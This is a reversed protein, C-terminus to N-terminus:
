ERILKVDKFMIKNDSVGLEKGSEISVHKLHVEKPRVIPYKETYDDDKLKPNFDAFIKPGKYNEPHGNDKITLGDIIVRAPLYCTYGFNHYGPNHGSILTVQGRKARAPVFVCNRIIVEGEWTSGYDPRLNVFSGSRNTTNEILLTGSGIANLGAHGLTSNRITANAVGQHADFRSLKCGDYLLNKSFNSAMIGWYKRDKIDNTQSCNIFSVNVARKVLIDYSGMSVPRGASGITRYTKRGTLVSDRVTVNACDSINLFGGYPAGHDGEGTVYHKVGIIEVNSRRIAIGRQYYTYKSEATNAITTFHGGRITLKETDIPLAEIKSIKEFDWIIPARMDVNGDADVLFVDTQSSGKNQNAGFRIYRKVEDNTITIICAGPLDANITKQNKKLSSIGDLSVSKHTSSILFVKTHRSEVHRDDIIFKADGFDTDTQIVITKDKGGIYYSAGEDAKVPLKHKNAYAHAKQLAETDDSKGDGLAGFESYLVFKKMEDAMANGGPQLM